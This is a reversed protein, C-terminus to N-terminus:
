FIGEMVKIVLTWIGVAGFVIVAGVGYPILTEKVKAKEEASGMLFQIGLVVGVVLVIATGVGSFMMYITNSTQQITDQDLMPNTGKDLFNKAGQMTEETAYATSSYICLMILIVFIISIVKYIYTKKNM